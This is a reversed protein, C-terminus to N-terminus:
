EQEEARKKEEEGVGRGGQERGEEEEWRERGVKKHAEEKVENKEM